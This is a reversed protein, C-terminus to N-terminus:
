HIRGLHNVGFIDLKYIQLEIVQWGGFWWGGLEMTGHTSFSVKGSSMGKSFYPSRGLNRMDDKTQPRPCKPIM